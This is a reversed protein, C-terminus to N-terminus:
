RSQYRPCTVHEDPDEMWGVDRRRDGCGTPLDNVNKGARHGEESHQAQRPEIGPLCYLGAPKPQDAVEQEAEPHHQDHAEAENLGEDQRMHRGRHRREHLSPHSRQDAGCALKVEPDQWCYPGQRAGRQNEAAQQETDRCETGADQGAPRACKEGERCHQGWYTGKEGVCRLRLDSYRLTKSKGPEPIREPRLPWRLGKRGRASLGRLAYSCSCYTLLLEAVVVQEGVHQPRPVREAGERGPRGRRGPRSLRHPRTGRGQRTPAPPRERLSHCAQWAVPLRTSSSVLVTTSASM